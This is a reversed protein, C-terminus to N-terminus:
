VQCMEIAKISGEKILIRAGGEALPDMKQTKIIVHSCTGFLVVDMNLYIIVNEGNCRSYYYVQDLGLLLDEKYPISLAM